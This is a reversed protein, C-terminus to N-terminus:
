KPTELASGSELSGAFPEAIPDDAVQHGKRKKLEAIEATTAIRWGSEKLLERARAETVDHVAGGPNVVYYVKVSGKVRHTVAETKGDADKSVDDTFHGETTRLQEATVARELPVRESAAKKLRPAKAKAKDTM